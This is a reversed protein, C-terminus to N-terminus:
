TFEAGHLSNFDYFDPHADINITIFCAMFNQQSLLPNCFQAM